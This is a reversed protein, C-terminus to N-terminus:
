LGHKKLLREKPSESVPPAGAGGPPAEGGEGLQSLRAYFARGDTALWDEFDISVPVENRIYTEGLTQAKVAKDLELRNHSIAARRDEAFAKQALALLQNKDKATQALASNKGLRLERARAIEIQARQYDGLAKDRERKRASEEKGLKAREGKAAVESEIRLKTLDKGAVYDSYTRRLGPEKISSVAQAVAKPDERSATPNATFWADVQKGGRDLIEDLQEERSLAKGTVAERIHHPAEFGYKKAIGTLEAERGESLLPQEAFKFPEGRPVYVGRVNKKGIGFPGAMPRKIEAAGEPLPMVAEEGAGFAQRIWPPHYIGFAQFYKNYFDKKEAEPLKSVMPQLRALNELAVQEQQQKRIAKPTFAEILSQTFFPGLKIGTEFSTTGGRAM